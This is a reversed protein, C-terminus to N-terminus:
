KVRSFFDKVAQPTEVKERKPQDEEPLIYPNKELEAIFSCWNSGEDTFTSIGNTRNLFDELSWKYNFYYKSRIVLDYNQIAKIIVDLSYTKLAKKIAKNRADNIEKHNITSKQANWCNFVNIIENDTEDFVSMNNNDQEISDKGISDKGLRVQTDVKYVNQICADKKETYAGNEDISLKEIEEIYKSPKYRDKQIYNNIKWHKIIIVQKDLCIVFKKAILVNMDDDKCGIMRMITKPNNVVGDDDARMGLHFYLCQCTIPMDLFVDSDIITKAFMRREAMTILVEGSDVYVLKSKTNQTFRLEWLLV